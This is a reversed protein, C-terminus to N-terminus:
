YKWQMHGPSIILMKVTYGFGKELHTFFHFVDHLLGTMSIRKTKHPLGCRSCYNENGSFGYSKCVQILELNEMQM